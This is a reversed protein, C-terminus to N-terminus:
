YNIADEIDLFGHIGPACAQDNDAFPLTPKVVDGTKYVFNLDHSSRVTYGTPPTYDNKELDLFKVVTAESVRVKRTAHDYNKKASEPVDLVVIISQPSMDVFNKHVLAKKYLRATTQPLGYSRTSAAFGIRKPQKGITKCTTGDASLNEVESDPM